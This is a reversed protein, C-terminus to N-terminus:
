HTTGSPDPIGRPHDAIEAEVIRRLEETKAATATLGNALAYRRLDSLVDFIWDHSMTVTGRQADFPYGLSVM